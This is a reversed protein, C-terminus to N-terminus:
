LQSLRAKLSPLGFSDSQRSVLNSQVGHFNAFLYFVKFMGKM